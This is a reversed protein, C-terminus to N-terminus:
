YHVTVTVVDTYAGTPTTFGPPFALMAGYVPHPQDSGDGTDFLSPGSTYTSAFDSDGWPFALNSDQHLEYGIGNVGDSVARGVAANQGADLAINYSVDIPCNVTVDGNAFVDISGDYDGFDVATTSVTCVPVVNVSVDLTATKTAGHAAGAFTVGLAMIFLSIILKKM